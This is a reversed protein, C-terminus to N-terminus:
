FKVKGRLEGGTDLNRALFHLPLLAAVEAVPVGFDALWDLARPLQLRFCVLESMESTIRGNLRHPEQVNVLVRLGRKRGEKVCRALWLPVSNPSCYRWVEDVVLIKEGPLRACLEFAYRCFFDFAGEGDGPFMRWPDFCVWGRTLSEGLEAPDRAAPLRLRASFEGRTSDREGPDPDFLFRYALPANILYRM